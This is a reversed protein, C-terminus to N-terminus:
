RSTLIIKLKKIGVRGRERKATERGEAGGEAGGEQGIATKRERRLRGRGEGVKRGGEKRGGERKQYHPFPTPLKLINFEFEQPITEKVRLTKDISITAAQTALEREMSNSPLPNSSTWSSTTVKTKKTPLLSEAEERSSNTSTM